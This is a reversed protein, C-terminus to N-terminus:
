ESNNKQMREGYPFPQLQVTKFTSLGLTVNEKEVMEGKLFFFTLPIHLELYQVRNISGLFFMKSTKPGKM